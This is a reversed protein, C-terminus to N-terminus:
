RNCSKVRLTIEILVFNSSMELLARNVLHTSLISMGYELRVQFQIQIWALEQLNPWSTAHYHVQLGGVWGVVAWRGVRCTQLHRFLVLFTDPHHRITEPLHRFLIWLIDPLHRFLVLLHRYPTQITDSIHYSPTQITDQHHRSPTLSTNSGFYKM